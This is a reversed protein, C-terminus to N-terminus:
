TARKAARRANEERRRAREAVAQRVREREAARLERVNGAIGRYTQGRNLHFTFEDMYYDLQQISVGGQHTGLLWRKFLSAARHVHPM